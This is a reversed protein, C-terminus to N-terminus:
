RERPRTPTAIYHQLQAHIVDTITRGEAAAKAKAANWVGDPIAHRSLRGDLDSVSRYWSRRLYRETAADVPREGADVRRMHANCRPCVLGRAGRGPATPDSREVAHDHDLWLTASPMGCLECHGAARAQLQDYEDCSLQYTTHHCTVHM